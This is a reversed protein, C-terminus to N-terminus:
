VDEEEEPIEIIPANEDPHFLPGTQGCGQLCLILLILSLFKIKKM